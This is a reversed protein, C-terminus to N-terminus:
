AREGRAARAEGRHRQSEHWHLLRRETLVFAGTLAVGVVGTVLIFAYMTPLQSPGANEATLIRLGLGDSGGVLEGVVALILGTAAAVRLGTALFPAASPLTVVGFRRLGRLRLSRATDRVVPDVARVGYMVQITMPWFVGFAVLFLKMKLTAGFVIIALPLIAIAPVTKGFEIVPMVGRYAFRSYGLVSGVVVASGAGILMGLAWGLLTQSVASWLYGTGLQRWLATLTGTMSPFSGRPLLGTVSLGQWAVLLLAFVGVRAALGAATRCIM